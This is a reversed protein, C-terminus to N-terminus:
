EWFCQDDIISFGYKEIYGKNFRKINDLPNRKKMGNAFSVEEQLTKANKTVAEKIKEAMMEKNIQFPAKGREEHFICTNFYLVAIYTNSASDKLLDMWANIFIQEINNIRNKQKYFCNVLISNIDTPFIDPVFPSVEIEYGNEGILLKLVEDNQIAREILENYNMRTGKDYSSGKNLFYM